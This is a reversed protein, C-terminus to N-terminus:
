SIKEVKIEMKRLLMTGLSAIKFGFSCVFSLLFFHVTINFSKNIIEPSLLEQQQNLLQEIVPSVEKPLGPISIASKSTEIRQPVRFLPIPPIWGTFLLIVQILALLMIIIGFTLLGYGVTKETM